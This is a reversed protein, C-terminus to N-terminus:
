INGVNPRHGSGGDPVSRPNRKRSFEGFKIKNQVGLQINKNKIQRPTIAQRLINGVYCEEAASM